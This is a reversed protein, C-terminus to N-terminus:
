LHFQLKIYAFFASAFLFISMDLDVYKPFFTFRCPTVIWHNFQKVRSRIVRQKLINRQVLLPPTRRFGNKILSAFVKILFIDFHAHVLLLPNHELPLLKLKRQPMSLLVLLM